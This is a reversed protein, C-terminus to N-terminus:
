WWSRRPNPRMVKVGCFEDAEPDAEVVVVTPEPPQPPNAMANIESLINSINQQGATQAHSNRVDREFADRRATALRLDAMDRRHLEQNLQQQREKRQHDAAIARERQAVEAQQRERELRYQEAAIREQEIRALYDRRWEEREAVEIDTLPKLAVDQVQAAVSRAAELDPTGADDYDFAM